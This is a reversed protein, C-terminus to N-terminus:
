SLNEGDDATGKSLEDIRCLNELACYRCTLKGNVPDIATCGAKFEGAVTEVKTPFETALEAWDKRVYRDEASPKIRAHFAQDAALASYGIKAANLHAIAVANVPAPQQSSMVTYYFPLQLDEPREDLWSSNSPASKGTKYDIVALSGDALQDIRDIVLTFLMGEYQWQHREERGLVQFDGRGQEADASGLFRQLLIRTRDHEIKEFRPTMLRTHRTRLWDIAESAANHCLEDLAEDSMQQLQQASNIQQYLYELARHMASGRAMKSLGSAFPELPDAQLRHLAFARFPCSSQDSLVQHGGLSQSVSQLPVYGTDTITHLPSSAPPQASGRVLQEIAQDPPALEFGAIFSSPRFEQDGDSKHHSACLEGIVSNCLMNFTVSAMSHQIDSHSGPLQQDRQLSYPLFPNARVSPPWVQDNCNLIWVYDFSLGAAEELSYQSIQCRNDFTQTQRSRVCLNRLCAIAKGLDLKGTVAGLGALRELAEDWRKLLQVQPPTLRGGPWHFEQLVTSFLQAWTRPSEWRGIRRAHERAALLASALAPCSYDKDRLQAIRSLEQALCRDSLNRRMYRELAHRQVSEGSNSLVFPSRLLRCLNESVQEERLLDLILFADHIVAEQTLNRTSHSTNFRTHTTDFQIQYHDELTSALVHHLQTRQKEDLEGIIGIHAQKNDALRSRAWHAIYAFEDRQSSFEYRKGAVQAEPYQYLYSNLTTRRNLKEFLEAYLPPPEYFNLLLFEEALPLPVGAELDANIQVLCDSLSAVSRQQCRREFRASWDLFAAIDPIVRYSELEQLHDQDLRWQKMLQYARSVTNATEEPNLLPLEELSEEIIEIWIFIEESSSLAQLQDYPAIGLAGAQQWLGTIWVDIGLVQPTRYVGAQRDAYAHSVIDRLRNTPVLVTAGRSLSGAIADINLRNVPM